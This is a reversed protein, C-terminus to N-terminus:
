GVGVLGGSPPGSLLSGQGRGVVGVVPCFPKTWPGDAFMFAHPASMVPIRVERKSDQHARVKSLVTRVLSQDPDLSGRAGVRELPAPPPLALPQLPRQGCGAPVPRTAERTQALCGFRSTCIAGSMGMKGSTAELMGFIRLVMIPGAHQAGTAECGVGTAFGDLCRCHVVNVKISSWDINTHITSHFGELWSRVGCCGTQKLLM